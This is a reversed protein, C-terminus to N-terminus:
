RRGCFAAALAAAIAVLPSTTPEPVAAAASGFGSAAVSVAKRWVVYDAADVVGNLNGDAAALATGFATRWTNYDLVNVVGNKDYDGTIALCNPCAAPDILIMQSFAPLQLTSMPITASTWTGGLPNADLPRFTASTGPLRVVSLRMDPSKLRNSRLMRM